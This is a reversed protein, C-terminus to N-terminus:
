SSRAGRRVTPWLSLARRRGEAPPTYLLAEDHERAHRLIKDLDTM